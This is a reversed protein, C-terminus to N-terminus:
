LKEYEAKLKGIEEDITKVLPERLVELKTLDISIRISKPIEKKLFELQSIAERIKTATTYQKDTM